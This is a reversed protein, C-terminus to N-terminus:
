MRCGKTPHLSCHIYSPLLPACCSVDLVKLVSLETMVTERFITSTDKRARPIIEDEIMTKLCGPLHKVAKKDGFNGFTPNARQFAIRVLLGVFEYLVLEQDKKAAGGEDTGKVAAVRKTTRGDADRKVAKGGGVQLHDMKTEASRRSEAHQDRVQASNTANAKIFQTTMLDFSVSKTELRCEDVFDKFEAMEMEM